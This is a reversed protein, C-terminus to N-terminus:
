VYCRSVQPTASVTCVPHCDKPYEYASYPFFTTSAQAHITYDRSRSGHRTMGREVVREMGDVDVLVPGLGSAPEGIM